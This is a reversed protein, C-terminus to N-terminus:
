KAFLKSLFPVLRFWQLYGAIFFVLWVLVGTMHNSPMSISFHGLVAAMAGMLLVVLLSSPFSLVGMLYVLLIETEANYPEKYPAFSYALVIFSLMIWAIKLGVVINSTRHTGSELM